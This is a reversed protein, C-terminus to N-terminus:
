RNKRLHASRPSLCDRDQVSFFDFQSFLRNMVGTKILTGVMEAYMEFGLKIYHVIKRKKLKTWHYQWLEYNVTESDQDSMNQQRHYEELHKNEDPNKVIKIANYQQHGTM